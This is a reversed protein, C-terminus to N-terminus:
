EQQQKRTLKFDSLQKVSSVALYAAQQDKSIGNKVFMFDRLTTLERKSLESILKEDDSLAASLGVKEAPRQQQAVSICPLLLILFCIRGIMFFGVLLSNFASLASAASRHLHKKQDANIQTRQAM